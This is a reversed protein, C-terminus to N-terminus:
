YEVLITLHRGNGNSQREAFKDNIVDIKEVITQQTLAADSNFSQKRSAAFNEMATPLNNKSLSPEQWTAITM